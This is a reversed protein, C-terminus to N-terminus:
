TIGRLSAWGAFRGLGLRVRREAPELLGSWLEDRGLDATKLMPRLGSAEIAAFLDSRLNAWRKRSIQARAPVMSDLVRRIDALDLPIAAPPQGLINAFSLVASRSDRKRTELLGAHGALRDLVTQLTVPAANPLVPNPKMPSARRPRGLDPDSRPPRPTVNPFEGIACISNRGPTLIGSRRFDIVICAM